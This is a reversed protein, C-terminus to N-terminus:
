KSAKSLSLDLGGAWIGLSSHGAFGAQQLGPGTRRTSLSGVHSSIHVVPMRESVKEAPEAAELVVRCHSGYPPTQLLM